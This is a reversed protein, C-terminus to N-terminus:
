LGYSKWVPNGYAECLADWIDDHLKSTNDALLQMKAFPGGCKKMFGKVNRKCSEASEPTGACKVGDEVWIVEYRQADKEIDPVLQLRKQTAKVIDWKVMGHFESAGAMYSRFIVVLATKKAIEELCKAMAEAPTLVIDTPKRGQVPVDPQNGTKKKRYNCAEKHYWSGTNPLKFPGSRSGSDIVLDTKECRALRHCSVDFTKFDFINPLHEDLISVVKLAFSTCHGTRMLSLQCLQQAAVPDTLLKEKKVGSLISKPSVVFEALTKGEWKLLFNIM